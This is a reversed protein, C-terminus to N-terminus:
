DKQVWRISNKMDGHFCGKVSIQVKFLVPEPLFTLLNEQTIPRRYKQSTCASLLGNALVGIATGEANLAGLMSAEDIGRAGGSIITLGENAARSGLNSAYALDDPSANRSGVIALGSQDINRANGGGFLVPPSVLGLHKKLLAPYDADSRTLVWLGSSLWRDMAIALASGRDLLRAVRDVTIKADSWGSLIDAPKESFLAEPGKEISKLWNAFRGWETPTLPKAKDSSSESFHATLLLIAQAQSSVSM